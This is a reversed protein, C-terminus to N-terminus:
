GRCGGAGARARGGAPRGQPARRRRRGSEDDGGGTDAAASRGHLSRRGPGGASRRPARGASRRPRAFTRAGRVGGGGRPRFPGRPRAAAPAGGRGGGVGRRVRGGRNHVRRRAAAFGREAARRSPRIRDRRAQSRAGRARQAALRGRGGARAATTEQVGRRARQRPRPTPGGAAGGVRDAPVGRLHRPLAARRARAQLTGGRRRRGARLGGAGRRDEPPALGLRRAPRRRRPPLGAAGALGPGFPRRPGRGRPRPRHRRDLSRCGVCGHEALAGNPCIFCTSPCQNVQLPACRVEQLGFAPDSFKAQPLIPPVPWTM